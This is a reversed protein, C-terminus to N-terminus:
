LIFQKKVSHIKKVLHIKKVSHIKKCSWIKKSIAVFIKKFIFSKRLFFITETFYMCIKNKFIYNIKSYNQENSCGYDSLTICFEYFFNNKITLM